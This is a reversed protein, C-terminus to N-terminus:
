SVMMNDTHRYTGREVKQVDSGIQIFIPMYIAASSGIEVAYKM